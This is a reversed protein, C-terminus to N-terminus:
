PGASFHLSLWDLVGTWSLPTPSQIAYPYLTFAFLMAMFMMFLIWSRQLHM